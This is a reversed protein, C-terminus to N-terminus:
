MRHIHLAPGYCFNAGTRQEMAPNDRYSLYTNPSAFAFHFEATVNM